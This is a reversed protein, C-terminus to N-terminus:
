FNLQLSTYVVTGNGGVPYPLSLGGVPSRDLLLVEANWRLVQNKFPYWNAGIRFDSPDGYQGFIKSGSVYAQLIRPLVMASAQVQFGHDFLNPLGATNPGRLQSIWRWYYEGELSLGHYKLGVDADSMQYLADQVWIGPGFLNPTFIIGGNSLRIQVNEFNDNDPQGQYNENSTTFHAALRTALKEHHDFDGFAGAFGFEGTTPLWVVATALTNLGNDLQGADVGLQSLNNGLMVSYSLRDVIDGQTWIGTTYSPRFFEDALLRNDVTLWNPFNGETSRVGPLGKIGGGVTLHRDITYNLTGGLVVQAGLGMSTNNTWVWLYYRFKRSLLWGLFQIQMKQLQIDQRRDVARTTGFADVYTSDLGMENLYRLYTLIKISLDGHETDAVKFGKMPTYTGFTEKKGGLSFAASCGDSVWISRQDYGWTTGLECTAAGTSRLLTVGAKTNAACNQREGPKSACVVDAAASPNGQAQLATPVVTSAMAAAMAAAALYRKLM